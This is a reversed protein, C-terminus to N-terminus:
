REARLVSPADPRGAHRRDLVPEPPLAPVPRGHRETGVNGEAAGDWSRARHTATTTFGPNAYVIKGHGVAFCAPLDLYAADVSNSKVLTWGTIADPTTGTAVYLKQNAGDRVNVLLKRSGSVYLDANIGRGKRASPATATGGGKRWSARPRLTPGIPEWNELVSCEGPSLITAEDTTNAGKDFRL